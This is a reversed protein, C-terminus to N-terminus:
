LRYFIFYLICGIIITKPIRENPKSIQCINCVHVIISGEQNKSKIEKGQVRRTEKANPKIIFFISFEFHCTSVNAEMHIIM